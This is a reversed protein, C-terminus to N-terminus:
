RRAKTKAILATRYAEDAEGKRVVECGVRAWPVAMGTYMEGGMEFTRMDDFAGGALVQRDKLAAVHWRLTTACRPCFEYDVKKGSEAVRTFTKTEGRFTTVQANEVVISVGYASGTRKKCADCHCLHAYLYGDITFRVAGCSCGGSFQM